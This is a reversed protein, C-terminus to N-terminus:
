LRPSVCVPRSVGRDSAALVLSGDVINSRTKKKLVAALWIEAVAGTRFQFVRPFDTLIQKPSKFQKIVTRFLSKKKEGAINGTKEERKFYFLSCWRQVAKTMRKRNENRVRKVIKKDRKSTSKMRWEATLSKGEDGLTPIWVCVRVRARQVAFKGKRLRAAYHRTHSFAQQLLSLPSFSSEAMKEVKTRQSKWQCCGQQRRKARRM